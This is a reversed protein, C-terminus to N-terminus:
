TRQPLALNLEEPVIPGFHSFSVHLRHWVSSSSAVQTLHVPPNLIDAEQFKDESSKVNVIAPYTGGFAERLSEKGGNEASEIGAFPISAPRLVFTVMDIVFLTWPADVPYLM